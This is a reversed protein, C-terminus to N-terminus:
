YVSNGSEIIELIKIIDDFLELNSIKDAEAVIFFGQCSLAPTKENNLMECLIMRGFPAYDEEKKGGFGRRNYSYSCGFSKGCNFPPNCSFYEPCPNQCYGYRCKNSCHNIIQKL